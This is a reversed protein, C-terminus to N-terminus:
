NLISEKITNENTNREETPANYKNCIAKLQKAQKKTKFLNKFM